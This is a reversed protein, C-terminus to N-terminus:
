QTHPCYILREHIDRPQPVPRSSLQRHKNRTPVAAGSQEKRRHSNGSLHVAGQVRSALRSCTDALSPSSPLSPPAASFRSKLLSTISSHIPHPRQHSSLFLLTRPSTSFPFTSSDLSSASTPPRPSQAPGPHVLRRSRAHRAFVRRPSPREPLVDQPSRTRLLVRM